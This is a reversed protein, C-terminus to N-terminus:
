TAWFRQPWRRPLCSALSASNRVRIRPAARPRSRLRDSMTMMARESASWDSPMSAVTSRRLFAISAPASMAKQSPMRERSSASATMRPRAPWGHRMLRTAPPEVGSKVTLSAWASPKLSATRQAHKICAQCTRLDETRQDSRRVRSVECGAGRERGGGERNLAGVLRKLGLAGVLVDGVAHTRRRGARGPQNDCRRAIEELHDTEVLGELEVGLGAVRSVLRADSAAKIETARSISKTAVRHM